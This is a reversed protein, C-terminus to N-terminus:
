AAETRAPVSVAHVRLVRVTGVLTRRTTRRRRRKVAPEGGLLEPAVGLEGAVENILAEIAAEDLGDPYNPAEDHPGM